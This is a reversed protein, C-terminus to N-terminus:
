LKGKILEKIKQLEDLLLKNDEKLGEIMKQQEQVAKTLPVVFEAYRLGYYDNSNKPKDVGNFDYGIQKAVQEVEQAIFGTQVEKEAEKKVKILEGHKGNSISDPIKLFANVSDVDM